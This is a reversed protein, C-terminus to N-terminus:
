RTCSVCSATKWAFSIPTPRAVAPRTAPGSPACCWSRASRRMWWSAATPLISALRSASTVLTTAAGTGTNMGGEIRHLSLGVAGPGDQELFGDLYANAASVLTDRPTGNRSPFRGWNETASYKLYNDANFLWYGTTTWIVRIEAIKDHNVRLRSARSM